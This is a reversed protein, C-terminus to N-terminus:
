GVAGEALRHAAPLVAERDNLRECPYGGGLRGNASVFWFAIQWPTLEAPLIAFVESVVPRPQGLADFQFAPFLLKGKVKLALVRKDKLWGEATGSAGTRVALGDVQTASLTSVERLFQARLRRNQRILQEEASSRQM